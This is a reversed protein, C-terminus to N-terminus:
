RQRLFLSRRALPCVSPAGPQVQSSISVKEEGTEDAFREPHDVYQEFFSAFDPDSEGFIVNVMWKSTEALM